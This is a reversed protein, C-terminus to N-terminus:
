KPASSPKANKTRLWIEEAGRRALVGPDVQLLRQLAADSAIAPKDGWWRAKGDTSLIALPQVEDQQSPFVSDYVGRGNDVLMYHEYHRNKVFEAVRTSLKEVDQQEKLLKVNKGNVQMGDLNTVVGVIIVDRQYQRAMVDIAGAADFNTLVDPHWFYVLIIKGDMNPKRPFWGSDPLAVDRPQLYVMEQQKSTDRPLKPWNAASYAAEDPRTYPLDPFVTLDVNARQARSKREAAERALKAADLGAKTGGAKASDEALLATVAAEVSDTAVGAYRMQGSRDILYFDPDSEARLAARFEGKSDHAVRLSGDEVKPKAAESWGRVSHAAVVILGQSGHAQALKQALAFARKPAPSFDNYALILVVKDKTLGEALEGNQWDSLKTWVDGAFPKLEMKNLAERLAGSGDRTPEAVASVGLGALAVVLSVTWASRRQFTM